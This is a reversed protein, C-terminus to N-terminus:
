FSCWMGGGVLRRQNGHLMLVVAAAEALKRIAACCRAEGSRSASWGRLVRGGAHAHALLYVKPRIERLVRERRTRSGDRTCRGGMRPPM